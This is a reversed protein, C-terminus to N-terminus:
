EEEESDDVEEQDGHPIPDTGPGTSSKVGLGGSITEGGGPGTKQSTPGDEMVAKWSTLAQNLLLQAKQLATSAHHYHSAPSTQHGLSSATEANLAVSIITSAPPLDSHANSHSTAPSVTPVIQYHISVSTSAPTM